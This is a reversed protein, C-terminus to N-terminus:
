FSVGENDTADPMKSPHSTVFVPHKELSSALKQILPFKTMDAGYIRANNVQPVLCIDALTFEDGVCCKGSSEQLMKELAEFGKEICQAAFKIGEGEEMSNLKVVIPLNQMPQIGSCITDVISQVKYKLVPDGPLLRPLNPYIEQLFNIIALSQILTYKRGSHELVLTPVQGIPNIALFEPKLQEDVGPIISVSKYEYDIKM